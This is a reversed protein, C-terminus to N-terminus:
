ACWFQEDPLRRGPILYAIDQAEQPAQAVARRTEHWAGECSALPKRRKFSVRHSYIGLKETYIVKRHKYDYM